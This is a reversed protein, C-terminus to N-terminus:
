NRNLTNNPKTVNTFTNGTITLGNTNWDTTIGNNMTDLTNSQITVAEALARHQNYGTNRYAYLGFIDPAESYNGLAPAPLVGTLSNNKLDIGYALNGFIYLASNNTEPSLRVGIGAVHSLPSYGTVTNREARNFYGINYRKATPVYVTNILVGESDTSTNDAIVGGYSDGYFWFGKACNTATNNAFVSGLMPQLVVFKSTADPPILWNDRVTITQASQNVATAENMQGLGTGEVIVVHWPAWRYADISWDAYTVGTATITKGSVSAVSGYMKTGGGAVEAMIAEGDNSNINGLDSIDNGYVYAQSRVTFGHIDGRNYEPHGAISNNQAVTYRATAHVAGAAYEFDNNTVNLYELVYSSALAAVTTKFSSDQVAVNRKAVINLGIGRQGSAAARDMEYDLSVNKVFISQATRLSANAVSAGFTEGMRLTIDPYNAGAIAISLNAVGVKGATAGDTKTTVASVGGSADYLLTVGTRSQGQLTVGSPLGLAATIRYTGNPLYLAGGGHVSKITDIGSQLAATDDTTGDGVAGFATKADYTTWDFDDAWALGLGLPDSGAARVAFTQSGSYAVWTAGGDNSLELTYAGAAVSPVTFDVGYPGTATVTAAYVSVGDALRVRTDTAAGFEAGDLNRGTLKVSQGAWAEDASFWHLLPRNVAFAGSWGASNGAELTFVGPTLTSPVTCTAYHGAPDTYSVPCYTSTGAFRLLTAGSELYEGYVTLLEGPKVAESTRLVLPSSVPTAHAAEPAPGVLSLLLAGGAFLLGGKRSIINWTLRSM